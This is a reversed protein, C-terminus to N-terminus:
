KKTPANSKKQKAQNKTWMELWQSRTIEKEDKLTFTCENNKTETLEIENNDGLDLTTATTQAYIYVKISEEKTTKLIGKKSNRRSFLHHNNYQVFYM